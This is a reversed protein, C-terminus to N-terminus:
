SFSITSFFLFVTHVFYFYLIYFIFTTSRKKPSVYKYPFECKKGLLINTEVIRKSKKKQLFM